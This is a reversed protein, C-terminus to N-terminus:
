VLDSPRLMGLEIARVAAQVRSRAGLRRAVAESLRRVTRESVGLRKAVVADTFGSAWLELAHQEQPTLHGDRRPPVAGLDTGQRWTATFLAVLAAVLAPETVLVAGANADREVPDDLPLLAARRDVVLLWMPLTPVTRVHAGREVLLRVQHARGPDCRASDPVLAQHAVGRSLAALVFPRTGAPGLAAPGAVDFSWVSETCEGALRDLRAQLAAAGALREVDVSSRARTARYADLWHNVARQCEALRSQRDRLEAERRGLLAPLGLEPDVPVLTAGDGGVGGDRRVLGLSCLREIAEAVARPSLQASRAVREPCAGPESVLAVYVRQGADDLGILDLM